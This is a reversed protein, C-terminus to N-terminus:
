PAQDADAPLEIVVRRLGSPPNPYDQLAADLIPPLLRATDAWPGDFSATTEYVVQASASDRLLIRVSHRLWNPELAMGIGFGGVSWRRGQHHGWINDVSASAGYPSAVPSVQLTVQVAYRATPAAAATGSIAGAVLPAPTLGVKALAQATHAELADQAPSAVQSPLREFRYSAPRLPPTPAAFSQVESDIMRSTACGSLLLLSAVLILPIRLLANM